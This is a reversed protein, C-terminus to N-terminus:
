IELNFDIDDMTDFVIVGEKTPIEVLKGFAGSAADVQDDHEGGPFSELEDLFDNIWPGKLLKVNGAEAYSSLPAARVEKSGTAKEGRFNFGRLVHRTYHDIAQVGSSGPEQEMFVPTQVGDMTATQKILNEIVGPTSRQRKVDLVYFMGDATMAMKCGATYDPDKGQKAETAAMDWFRVVEADSPAADMIQFWARNFMKKDDRVDWNGELLQQRTVPDLHNLSKVYEARDLYPNDSLSAPIFPRDLGIGETIYRQKVWVHGVGGPNSAGRLRLPVDVTKPRRLRSFMYRVQMERLQTIEDFGIFQFESSQYRFHDRPGDLYGFSLTAGSPFEWTKSSDIWHADTGGLWEHSRDMLAGPLSLDPYSRRFLIAAYGQIDVYQLAAALLAISKGGGAAGGYFAEMCRLMLFALQKPTPTIPIYKSWPIKLSDLSEWGSQGLIQLTNSQKKLTKVVSM